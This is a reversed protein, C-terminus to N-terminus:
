LSPPNRRWWWGKGKAQEDEIRRRFRIYRFLFWVVVIDRICGGFGSWFLYTPSDPATLGLWYALDHGLQHLLDHHEV